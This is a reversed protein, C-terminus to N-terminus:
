GSFYYGEGRRTLIYRPKSANEEIKERLRRIHVDVTRLEGFREYGWIIKLLEERSYVKHPHMMMLLMLDFEKATLHLQGGPGSVKRGIPHITFGDISLETESFDMPHGSRRSLAKLRAKLEALDYPKRLYDDAGSELALVVSSPATERSLVMLPRDTLGRISKILERMESETSKLDLIVLDFPNEIDMRLAESSIKLRVVLHGDDELAEKLSELSSFTECVLLIRM